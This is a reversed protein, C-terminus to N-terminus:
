YQEKKWRIYNYIEEKFKSKPSWGLLKCSLDNNYTLSKSSDDNIYEIKSNTAESIIEALENNSYESKSVALLVKGKVYEFNTIVAFIFECVDNVHIYNQKREGNGWVEIVGNRLAQNIYNPVITNEKMDKGYLSSLRVIVSNPNKSILLEAWLKSIAYDTKPNIAATEKILDFNSDYISATSLYIIKSSTFKKTINETLKVNVDFLLQNSQSTQGSSIAAHCLILFDPVVKLEDIEFSSFVEIGNWHEAISGIGYIIYNNKLFYFLNSGLFGKVGSILIIKKM